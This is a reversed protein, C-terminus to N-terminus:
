NKKIAQTMKEHAERLEELANLLTYNQMMRKEVPKNLQPLHEKAYKVAENYDDEIELTGADSYADIKITGIYLVEGANATFTTRGLTDARQSFTTKGVTYRISNLRYTGPEIMHAHLSSANWGPFLGQASLDYKIRNQGKVSEGMREWETRVHKSDSFALTENNPSYIKTIVIAKNKLSQQDLQVESSEIGPVCGSLAFLGFISLMQLRTIM